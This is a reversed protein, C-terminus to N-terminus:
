VNNESGAKKFINSVTAALRHLRSNSVLRLTRELAENKMVLPMFAAYYKEYTQNREKVYLPFNEPRCSIGDMKYVVLDVDVYCYSAHHLCVANIFFEWDSVIKFGENYRGVKSFLSRKILTAQHPLSHGSYFHDFDLVAPYAQKRLGGAEDLMMNGYILETEGANAALRGLADATYFFDGSNLFLLYDGKAKEIGKNMASYVGKDPESVWYTIKDTSGELLETSEDNSGGDIVIYEFGIFSQMFVSTITEQLGVANNLNITIISVLPM